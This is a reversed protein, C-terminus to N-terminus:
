SEIGTGSVVQRRYEAPLSILGFEEELILDKFGSVSIKEKILGTIIGARDIQGIFIAGKIKDDKLVIKRYTFADEDLNSLTEYGNGHPSTIGVSITPVGCIEISNMALGGEYKREKGAMNCGAIYGQRYANPLIPIPRKEGTLIDVAEAVDGAAYIGKVSTQLNDDVLIGRNSKIDTGQVLGTDPIVGIAFMLLNCPVKTGDKLTVGTMRDDRQNIRAVTTKCIVNVGARELAKKAMDSAIDDFTASLIGEMLEVVTTRIGLEVLAEVSKLGILGGGIVVAKKVSRKKIFDKIKRADDWTTLTFIGLKERASGKPMGKIDEPIVPRGGTAILLKDFLLSQGSSVEVTRERTDIRTAETGLIAKINNNEYFDPPRYYMRSEDVKGALLYSILPKSYVHEPERSVITIISDKDHERIGEMAGTAGASNGIILYPSRDMKM